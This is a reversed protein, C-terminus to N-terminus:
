KEGLRKKLEALLWHYVAAPAVNTHGFTSVGEWWKHFDDYTPAVSEIALRLNQRAAYRAGADFGFSFTARRAVLRGASEVVDVGDLDTSRIAALSASRAAEELEAEDLVRPPPVIKGADQDMTAVGRAMRMSRDVMYIPEHLRNDAIWRLTELVYDPARAREVEIAAITLREFDDHNKAAIVIERAIEKPSKM